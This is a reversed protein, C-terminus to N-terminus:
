GSSQGCFQGGFGCWFQVLVPRQNFLNPPAATQISPYAVSSTTTTTTVPQTATESVRVNGITLPRTPTLDLGYDLVCSESSKLQPAPAAFAM